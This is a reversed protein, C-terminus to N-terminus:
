NETCQSRRETTEGSIWKLRAAEAFMLLGFPKPPRGSTSDPSQSMTERLFAKGWPPTQSVALDHLKATCHHNCKPDIRGPGWLTTSVLTKTSRVLFRRRSRFFTVPALSADLCLYSVITNPTINDQVSLPGGPFDYLNSPVSNPYCLIPM